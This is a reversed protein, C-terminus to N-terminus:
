ATTKTETLVVDATGRRGTSDGAVDIFKVDWGIATAAGLRATMEDTLYVDIRGTAQTVTLEGDDATIPAVLAAGNLRQLGDTGAAPNTARLQVIAATDADRANNKLTWLATTWDAPITLGTVSEDFTLGVTITLHGASSAAVQTVASVDIGALRAIIYGATNPDPYSGDLLDSAWQDGAAGAASLAAGATGPTTHGSLAEDLVADAVAAAAADNLDSVWKTDAIDRAVFDAHAISEITATIYMQVSQGATLEPLTVAWKYPNTGTVTVSAGNATGDVYLTGAPGVSPTSLAGTVGRTVIAGSWSQGSKVM